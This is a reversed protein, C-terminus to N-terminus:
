LMELARDIRSLVRDQGLIELCDFMGLGVAKGTVAVRLAHIVDGIKVGERELFQRLSVETTAADFNDLAALDARFSRLRDGADGKRLRKNFAKEDFALQEDECFFEGYDLIDGATKIRDGAAVAIQGLLM